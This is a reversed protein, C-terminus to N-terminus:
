VGEATDRLPRWGATHRDGPGHLNRLIQEYLKPLRVLRGRLAQWDRIRRQRTARVVAPDALHLRHELVCIRAILAVREAEAPPVLIALRNRGAATWARVVTGRVLRPASRLPISLEIATGVPHLRTSEFDLELGRGGATRTRQWPGLARTPYPVARPHRLLLGRATSDIGSSSPNADGPVLQSQAAAAATPLIQNSLCRM